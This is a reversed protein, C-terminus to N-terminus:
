RFPDESVAVALAEREVPRRWQVGDFVHDGDDAPPAPWHEFVKGYLVRWEHNKRFFGDTVRGRIYARGKGSLSGPTGAAHWNYAAVRLHEPLDAIPTVALAALVSALEPRAMGRLSALEEDSVEDAWELVASVCGTRGEFMYRYERIQRIIRVAVPEDRIPTESSM